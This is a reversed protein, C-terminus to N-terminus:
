QNNRQKLELARDIMALLVNRTHENDASIKALLAKCILYIVGVYLFIFVVFKLTGESFISNFDSILSSFNVSGINEKELVKSRIISVVLSSLVTSIVTGITGIPYKLELIWYKKTPILLYLKIEEM